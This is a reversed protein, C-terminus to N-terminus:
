LIKRFVPKTPEGILFEKYGKELAMTYIDLSETMAEIFFDVDTKQHSYCPVLVGQFLIGRKIMEQLMLTRMGNCIQGDKNKFGYAVM